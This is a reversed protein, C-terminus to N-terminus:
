AAHPSCSTGRRRGRRNASCEPCFRNIGGLLLTRFPMWWTKGHQCKWHLATMNNRYKESLLVIGREAAIERVEAISYRANGNCYPCWTGNCEVNTPVADWQHGYECEWTLKAKGGKWETSVLRGGKSRAHASLRAMIAKVEKETPASYSLGPRNNEVLNDREITIAM